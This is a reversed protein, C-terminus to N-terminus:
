ELQKSNTSFPQTKAKNLMAHVYTPSTKHQIQATSIDWLKLVNQTQLYTEVSKFTRLQEVLHM